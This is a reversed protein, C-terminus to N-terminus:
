QRQALTLLARAENHLQPLTRDRARLWADTVIAMLRAELELPGSAPEAAPEHDSLRHWTGPVYKASDYGVDRKYQQGNRLFVTMDAPRCYESFEGTVIAPQCAIPHPYNAYVYHVLPVSDLLNSM